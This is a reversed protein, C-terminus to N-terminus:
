VERDKDISTVDAGFAGGAMRVRVSCGVRADDLALIGGADDTVIAYGRALVADPDLARLSADLAGRAEGGPRLLENGNM